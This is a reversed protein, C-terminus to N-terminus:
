AEEMVTEFEYGDGKPVITWRIVPATTEETEPDYDLQGSAGVVNISRKAKFATKIANWTTSVIDYSEGASIKTLGEAMFRGEIEGDHQYYSWASGYIALWTADYTHASYSASMADEPFAPNANYTTRFLEYNPGSPEGPFVGRINPYLQSAKSVTETIVDENKAADGFFIKVDPSEYFANAGAANLFSTVQAVDSAIFVVAFNAPAPNGNAVAVVKGPIESPDQYEELDLTAKSNKQLEVALGKGYTNGEYVVVANTVGEDAMYQALKAGLVSDPPATRWFLGPKDEDIDSLSPSTASPSVILTRELHEPRALERYVAEALGSTGPGIIAPAGLQDVLYKAGAIAAEESSLDDIMPNEQYDCHVIAYSRDDALGTKNAEMVALTASNVLVRDGTSATHDFLSGLVVVNRYKEPKTFLDIPYVDDCREFGQGEECLGAEGCVYGLGFAERCAASNTCQAYDVSSVASCGLVAALVAWLSPPGARRSLHHHMAAMKHLFGM